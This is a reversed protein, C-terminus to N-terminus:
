GQPRDRRAAERDHQKSLISSSKSRRTTGVVALISKSIRRTEFSGEQFDIKPHIRAQIRRTDPRRLAAPPYGHLRLWRKIAKPKWTPGFYISHTRAPHPLPDPSGRLGLKSVKRREPSSEKSQGWGKLLVEITKGNAVDFEETAYSESALKRKHEVIENLRDDITGPSHLYWATVARFQGFRWCRDEGQDHDAGTLWYEVFLVHRAATLTIAEKAARTALFVPARRAQFEQVADYRAQPSTAGEIVVHRVRTKTLVKRLEHFVNQHQCFVVVSEGQKVLKAILDIAAPVKGEGVIQRLYNIKTLSEQQIARFASDVADAQGYRELEQVLWGSFDEEARRYRKLASSPIAVRVPARRKKPMDPAVKSLLRRIFVYQRKDFLRILTKLEKKKNVLPTGTLLMLSTCRKVLKRLAASRQSDNVAYHAEDAAVLQIKKRALSKWRVRLLDWSVVYIDAEPLKSHGDPCLHVKAKPYWKEAEKTWNVTANTPAVVVCPLVEHSGRRLAELAVVTKGTGQSSAILANWNHQVIRHVDRKQFDFLRLKRSRPM